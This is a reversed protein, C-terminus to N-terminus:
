VVFSTNKLEKLSEKEEGKTQRRCTLCLLCLSEWVIRNLDDVPDAEM